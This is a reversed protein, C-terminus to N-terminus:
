VGKKKAAAGVGSGGGERCEGATSGLWEPGFRGSRSLSSTLLREVRLADDFFEGPM